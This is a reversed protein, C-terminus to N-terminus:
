NGPQAGDVQTGDTLRMGYRVESIARWLGSSLASGAPGTVQEALKGDTFEVANGSPDVVDSGWGTVLSQFIPVNEALMESMPPMEDRKISAPAAAFLDEYGKPSLVRMSVTFQYENFLGGDSPLKVIVPWEVIPDDDIVFRPKNDAQEM